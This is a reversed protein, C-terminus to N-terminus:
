ISAFNRNCQPCSYVVSGLEVSKLTKNGCTPCLGTKQVALVEARRQKEAKAEEFKQAAVQTVHRLREMEDRQRDGTATDTGCEQCRFPPASAANTIADLLWIILWFGLCLVSMLLHFVHPVDRTNRVHMTPRDCRCCYFQAHELAMKMVGSCM